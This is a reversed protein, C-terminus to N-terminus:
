QKVVKYTGYRGEYQVVLQYIGAPLQYLPIRLTTAEEALGEWALLGTLGFLRVHAQAPLDQVFVENAAPNPYIKLSALGNEAVSVTSGFNVCLSDNARNPDAAIAEAFACLQYSGGNGPVFDPNIRVEVSDGPQLNLTFDNGAAIPLANVRYRFRVIQQLPAAGVNRVMVRIEAPQNQTSGPAPSVFRTIALDPTQITINFTDRVTCNGDTYQLVYAGSATPVFQARANSDLRTGSSLQIWAYDGPDLRLDTNFSGITSPAATESTRWGSANRNAVGIRQVSARNSANVSGAFDFTNVGSAQSFVHGNLAVADMVESTAADALWIGVANSSLFPSTGGATGWGYIRTGANSSTTGAVLTITQGSDLSIAPLAYDLAYFGEMRLRKGALDLAQKATNSIEVAVQSSATPFGAPYSTQAGTLIRNFFVESLRLGGANGTATRIFPANLNLTTDNQVSVQLGADRLTALRLTDTSNGISDAALLFVHTAAGAAAAPLTAQWRGLRVNGTDLSLNINQFPGQNVRYLLRANAIGTADSLLASVTRSVPSCAAPLPNYVVSTVEPALIDGALAGNFEYAGLDPATGGFAPRALGNFDTNPLGLFAIPTGASEYTSPVLTDIILVENSIFRAPEKGVAPLSASDNGALTVQSIARFAPLDAVFVQGLLTSFRALLTQSTDGVAYANHNFVNNVFTYNQPFWMSAFYIGTSTSVSRLNNSFINNRVDLNSVSTATVAFAAAAAGGTTPQDYLGFLHVTNYYVRHGTGASLRIGIAANFSSNGVNGTKLDAIVNNALLVNNGGNIFIGIAGQLTGSFQTHAINRIDNRVIQLQNNSGSTEIGVKQLALPSRLNRMTNNAILTSDTNHLQVGRVGIKLTSDANGFFNNTIRTGYALRNSTGRIYVGQWLREFRNNHVTLFRHEGESTATISQGGVLLGFQLNVEANAGLFRVHAISLRNTGLDTNGVLQVLASSATTSTTSLTLRSQNGGVWNGLLQIDNADQFVLAVPNSGTLPGRINAVVGSDPRIIARLTDNRSTNRTFVIPFQEAADYVSDILVFTANGTFVAQNIFAAAQTITTFDGGQGVRYRGNASPVIRYSLLSSPPVNGVPQVGSGGLPATTVAGTNNLVALYYEIQDNAQLGGLATSNFQFTYSNAVVVPASDVIFATQGQKRYYLRPSNGATTVIGTSDNITVQLSRSSTDPTNALPTFIFTALSLGTFEYAGIDPTSLNRTAGTLDNSVSFRNNGANDVSLSSPVLLSDALFLPQVSRSTSDTTVSARWATYTNFNQAPALIRFAQGQVNELAKFYNNNALIASDVTARNTFSLISFANPSQAGLVPEVLMNNAIILSDFPQTTGTGGEVVLLAQGSTTSSGLPTFAVSNHLLAIRDRGDAVNGTVLIGRSLGTNGSAINTRGSIENNAVLNNEGNTGAGLNNLEMGSRALTGGIRNSEVRVLRSNQVLIGTGTNTNGIFDSFRNQRMLLGQQNNAWIGNVLYNQFLSSEILHAQAPANALGTLRIADGFGFFSSNNISNGIGGDMLLGINNTSITRISDRFVLNTLSVATGNNVALLPTAATPAITRVFTVANLSLGQVGTFSLAEQAATGYFRVDAANGSAASIVLTNGAASGLIPGFAIPGQYNGAAVQLNVNGGIGSCNIRELFAAFSSFNAGPGGLTYNGGALPLCIIQRITDNTATSDPLGNISNIWVRLTDNVNPLILPQAFTLTTAQLSPISSTFLEQITPGNGVRYSLSVNNIINSGRNQLGVSVQTAAAPLFPATPSSVVTLAADNGPLPAISVGLTRQAASFAGSNSAQLAATLAIDRGTLTNSRVSFGSGATRENYSIEVILSQTADYSFPTTLPFRFYQNSSVSPISFSAAQLVTTLNTTFSTTTLVTDSTQGLSITLNSWTGSGSGSASAMFLTDINGSFPTSTFDFPRYITRIKRTATSSFPVFNAASGTNLLTTFDVQASLGGSVLMWACLLLWKRMHLIKYNIRIRFSIATFRFSLAPVSIIPGLCSYNGIKSIRYVVFLRSM